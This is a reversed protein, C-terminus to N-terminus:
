NGLQYFSHINEKPLKQQLYSFIEKELHELTIIVHDINQYEFADPHYIMIGNVEEGVRQRDIFGVVNLCGLSEGISDLMWRAHSGAGYIAVRSNKTWEHCWIKWNLRFRLQLESKYNEVINLGLCEVIASNGIVAGKKKEEPPALYMWSRFEAETGINFENFMKKNSDFFLSLIERRQEYSLLSKSKDSEPMPKHRFQLSYSLLLKQEDSFSKNCVRALELAGNDYGPNSVDTRVNGPLYVLGITKLFDRFIDGKCCVQEYCKVHLKNNGSCESILKLRKYWDFRNSANETIKELELRKGAKMGQKYASEIYKDQRRVYIIIELNGLYNAFEEILEPKGVLGEYSVVVRDNKCGNIRHCLNRVVDEAGLGGKGSCYQVLEKLELPNFCSVGQEGLFLEHKLMADQIATSGTKPYGIHLYLTKNEILSLIKKDEM